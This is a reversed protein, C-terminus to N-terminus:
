KYIGRGNEDYGVFRPARYPEEKAQSAADKREWTRVAAKWDRMPNRGVKWGVSEYYSLFKEPDVSNGRTRCYATLAELTPPVFRKRPRSEKPEGEPPVVGDPTTPTTHKIDQKSDPIPQGESALPLPGGPGIPGGGNRVAQGFDTVAYWLTRDYPIENFNGTIVLGFERLKDLASRIQKPTMYPFLESFAKKSNYTWAKGDHICEDNARNKDTWFCINQFLVAANIGVMKAVETDFSHTM